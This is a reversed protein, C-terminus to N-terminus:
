IHILSLHDTTRPDLGGHRSGRSGKSDQPGILAGPMVIIIVVIRIQWLRTTVVSVRVVLASYM